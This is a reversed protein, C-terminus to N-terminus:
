SFGHKKEGKKKLFNGKSSLKKFELSDKNYCFIFSLLKRDLLELVFLRMSSRPINKGAISEQM